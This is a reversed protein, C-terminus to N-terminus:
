PARLDPEILSARGPHGPFLEERCRNPGLPSEACARIWLFDKCDWNGNVLKVGNVLYPNEPHIPVADGPGTRREGSLAQRQAGEGASAM